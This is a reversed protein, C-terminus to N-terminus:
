SSLQTKIRNFEEQSIVDKDRYYVTEGSPATGKRYTANGNEFKEAKPDKDAWLTDHIYSTDSVKSSLASRQKLADANEANRSEMNNITFKNKTKGSSSITTDSHDSKANNKDITKGAADFQKIEKEELKTLRKQQSAIESKLEKINQENVKAKEIIGNNDEVAQKAKDYNEKATDVEEKAKKQEAEAEKLDKNATELEKKAANLEKEANAVAQKNSDKVQKAADKANKANDMTTKAKSEAQKAENLKTEAEKVKAQAADYQAANKDTRPGLANLANKASTLNTEAAATNNKAVQYKSEAEDYAAVKKDYDGSAKDYDQKAKDVGAQKSEQLQKKAQVKQNTKSLNSEAQKYSTEASKEKTELDSVKGEADEKAKNLENAQGELSSLQGSASSIASRLAASDNASTMGSISDSIGSNLTSATGQAGLDGFANDLQKNNSTGQSGKSGGIVGLQNLLSIGMSLTQGIVQGATFANSQGTQINLNRAVNASSSIGRTAFVGNNNGVGNLRQRVGTYDYKAASKSVSQGAVYNTKPGSKLSYNSTKNAGVSNTLKVTAQRSTGSTRSGFTANMGATRFKAVDITM